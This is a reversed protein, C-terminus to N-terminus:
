LHIKFYASRDSCNCTHKHPCTYCPKVAYPCYKYLNDNLDSNVFFPNRSSINSNDTTQETDIWYWKSV